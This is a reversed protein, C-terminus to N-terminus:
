TTILETFFVGGMIQCVDCPNQSISVNILHPNEYIQRQYNSKLINLIEHSGGRIWDPLLQFVPDILPSLPEAMLGICNYDM